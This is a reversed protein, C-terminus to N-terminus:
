PWFRTTVARAYGVYSGATKYANDESQKAYDASGARPGYNIGLEEAVAIYLIEDTRSDPSLNFWPPCIHVTWGHSRYYGAEGDCKKECEFNMKGAFQENIKKFRDIFRQLKVRDNTKFHALAEAGGIKPDGIVNLANTVMRAAFAFRRRIEDGQPGTCDSVKDTPAKRIDQSREKGGNVDVAFLAYSDANNMADDPSLYAFVREDGYGRDDVDAFEHTFEHILNYTQRQATDGFYSKCFVARGHKRSVYALALSACLPDFPSACMNPLPHHQLEVKEFNSAIQKARDVQDAATIPGNNKQHFFHVDLLKGTDNHNAPDAAFDNARKKAERAWDKTGAVRDDIEKRQKADCPGVLDPQGKKGKHVRVDNIKELIDTEKKEDDDSVNGFLTDVLGDKEMAAVTDRLDDPSLAKLIMLAQHAEADTVAWDLHWFSRTLLKHLKGYDKSVARQLMPQPGTTQQLVHALEHAILQRGSPTQPAYQRNGFVIRDGVTYALAHISSAAEAARTDAHIRVQSFDHGFRPEFFARASPDLSDGPSKLVDQVLPPLATEGAWSAADSTKRSLTATADEKEDEKECAACKRQAVTGAVTGGGVFPDPMRMVHEAMRDAESELPDDPAGVQLKAQLPWQLIRSFKERDSTFTAVRSASM